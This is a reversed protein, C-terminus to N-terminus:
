VVDEMIVPMDWRGMGVRMYFVSFATTFSSRSHGVHDNAFVSSVYTEPAVELAAGDGCKQAQCIPILSTPLAHHFTIRGQSHRRQIQDKHESRINELLGTPMKQSPPTEHVLKHSKYRMQKLKPGCFPEM